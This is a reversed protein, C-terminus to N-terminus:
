AHNAKFGSGAKNRFSVEMPQSKTIGCKKSTMTTQYTNRCSAFSSTITWGSPFHALELLKSYILQQMPSLVMSVELQLSASTTTPTSLLNIQM